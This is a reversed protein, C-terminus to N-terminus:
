IDLIEVNTMERSLNRQKAHFGNWLYPKLRICLTTTTTVPQNRPRICGTSAAIRESTLTQLEAHTSIPLESTNCKLISSITVDTHTEVPKIVTYEATICEINFALKWPVDSLDLFALMRSPATIRVLQIAVPVTVIMDSRDKEPTLIKGENSAINIKTKIGGLAKRFGIIFVM